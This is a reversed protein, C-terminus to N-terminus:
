DMYPKQLTVASPRVRAIHRSLAGGANSGNETHWLREYLTELGLGLSSLQHILALHVYLAKLEKAFPLKLKFLLLFFLLSVWAYSFFMIWMTKHSHRCM